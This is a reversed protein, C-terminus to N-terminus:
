GGSVCPGRTDTGDEGGRRGVGTPFGRCQRERKRGPQHAKTCRLPRLGYEPSRAAVSRHRRDTGGDTWPPGRAGARNVARPSLGRTEKLFIIGLPFELKPCKPNLGRPKELILECDSFKYNPGLIQFINVFLDRAKSFDVFYSWFKLFEYRKLWLELDLSESALIRLIVEEKKRHM